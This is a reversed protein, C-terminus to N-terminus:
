IRWYQIAQYKAETASAIFNDGVPAQAEIYRAASQVDRWGVYAM